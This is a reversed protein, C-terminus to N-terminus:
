AGPVHLACTGQFVRCTENYVFTSFANSSEDCLVHQMWKAFTSGWTGKYEKVMASDWEEKWWPWDVKQETSLGSRIRSLRDLVEFRTKRAKAGGANATGEGLMEPTFRKVAHCCASVQEMEALKRKSERVAIAANDRDKIAKAADRKRQLLEAACRQKERADEDEARRLAMFSDAVAPAVRVMSRLKRKEKTLEREMLVAGRAHGIAKLGAVTAMLTSVTSQLKHAEEAQGVSTTGVVMQSGEAGASRKKKEEAVATVRPADDDSAESATAGDDEPADEDHLFHTDDHQFDSGLKALVRDIEKRTKYAPILARVAEQNWTLRKSKIEEELPLLEDNIKARMNVYGDTTEENWFVGAERVVLADEKGYLDISQGTKKYGESARIHIAPDSLVEFMIQMCEEHTLAPVVQGARMKELLLRSERRSYERRVHQNLDTDCTQGVPTSGGGHVIRVYGRSWCLKWVNETKHCVYDDCLYIRWDRGPRWPELHKRLWEIVDCERYSGKPAVTVTFWAPYGRSRLHEQLRKDVPGDPEAKFMCEAAPM